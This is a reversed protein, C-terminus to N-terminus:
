KKKNMKLQLTDPLDKIFYKIINNIIKNLNLINEEPEEFIMENNIKTLRRTLILFKTIVKDM